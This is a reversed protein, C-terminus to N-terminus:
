RCSNNNNNKFLGNSKVMNIAQEISTVGAICMVFCLVIEKLNNSIDERCYYMILAFLLTIIAGIILFSMKAEFVTLGNKWNLKTLELNEPDESRKKKKNSNTNDSATTLFDNAAPLNKDLDLDKEEM